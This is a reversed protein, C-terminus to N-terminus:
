TNWDDGGNDVGFDGGAADDWGRDDAIGFDQGGMDANPDRRSEGTFAGIGADRALPSDAASGGESSPQPLPRGEHDFIRRGIEQAAVAGAGVALGTALGRGLTSGLSSPAAPPVNGYGPPPMNADQRGFATDLGQPPPYAAPPPAARKRSRLFFIGAIFILAVLLLAGM